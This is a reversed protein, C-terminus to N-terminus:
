SPLKDVLHQIQSPFNLVKLSTIHESALKVQQLFDSFEELATADNPGIKPWTALKKEFSTSIVAPNGFREKLIKRAEQYTGDPDKVLYQLQEVVKRAKGDLHQYLLHLKQRSTVPASDILSEFANEWLFFKTKDHEDGRFVDPKAQPLRQLQSIKALADTLQASYNQPAPGYATTPSPVVIPTNGCFGRPPHRGSPETCSSPFVPPVQGGGSFSCTTVTHDIPSASIFIQSPEQTPVAPTTHNVSFFAPPEVQFQSETPTIAPPSTALAIDAPCTGQNFLTPNTAGPTSTLGAVNDIELFASVVDHQTTPLLPPQEDYLQSESNVAEEYVAEQAAIEGLEKKMRLQQLKNEQEAIAAAFKLAEELAARKARFDILTEKCSSRSQKSTSSRSSQSHHSKRSSVSRKDEEITQVQQITTAHILKWADILYAQKTMTRQTESPGDSLEMWEDFSQIVDDLLKTLVAVEKRIENRIKLYVLWSKLAM